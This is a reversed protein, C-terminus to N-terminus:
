FFSRVMYITISQLPTFQKKACLATNKGGHHSLKPVLSDQVEPRRSLKSELALSSTCSTLSYAEAM